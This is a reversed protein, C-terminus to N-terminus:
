GAEAREVVVVDPDFQDIERTTGDAWAVTAYLAYSDVVIGLFGNRHQVKDNERLFHRSEM